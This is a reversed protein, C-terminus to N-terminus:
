NGSRKTLKKSAEIAEDSAKKPHKGRPMVMRWKHRELVEYIYGSRTEKNRKKNFAAKIEKITVVKGAEAEKKFKELIEAEEETPIIQSNGGYKHRAYESLGLKKFESCLVSVRKRSYGLKEAIEIDKKGEYRLLIVQLRKDVRKNKNRKATEKVAAYEEATIIHTKMKMVM